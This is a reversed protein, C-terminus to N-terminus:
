LDNAVNNCPRPRNCIQDSNQFSINVRLDFIKAARELVSRGQRMRLSPKASTPQDQNAGM